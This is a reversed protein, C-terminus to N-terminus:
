TEAPSAMISPVVTVLPNGATTARLRNREASDPEVVTIGKLYPFLRLVADRYQFSGAGIFTAHLIHDVIPRGALQELVDSVTSAPFQSKSAPRAVCATPEITLIDPM